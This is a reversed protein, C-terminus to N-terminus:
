YGGSLPLAVSRAPVGSALSAVEHVSVSHSYAGSLCARKTIHAFICDTSINMDLGKLRKQSRFILLINTNAKTRREKPQISHSTLLPFVRTPYNENHTRTLRDINEDPIQARGIRQNHPLNSSSDLTWPGAPLAISDDDWGIKDAHM